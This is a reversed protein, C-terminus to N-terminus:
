GQHGSRVTGARLQAYEMAAKMFDLNAFPVLGVGAERASCSLEWEIDDNEAVDRQDSEVPSTITQQM